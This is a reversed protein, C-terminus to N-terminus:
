FSGDSRGLLELVTGAEPIEGTRAWTAVAFTPDSTTNTAVPKESVLLLLWAGMAFAAATALAPWRWCTLQLLVPHQRRLEASRRSVSEVLRQWRAADTSAPDLPRLDIREDM